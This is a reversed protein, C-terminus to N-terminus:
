SSVRALEREISATVSARVEDITIRELVENFFGFVILREAEARPIGRSMLYFLQEEEVPGVSAAHGCRVDNAEIELNPIARAFADESLIVNRSTQMADTQQAGPRVHVWGSYVGRSRDRLAGKYLLDSTCHPAVHDQETRHDFHQDDDAFFIGLAESTAGQEALISEAEARALSAGFGVNVSRFEADRALTARQVGLHTVGEGWEQLAVYRVRAAPGVVIETVADSLAHTLDRSVWRDIFTVEADEGVVILTHPFVASRDADLYVLSQLPLDVTVGAPVHLFTGATRFAAHLATFKTREPPVLRHLHPVVLDPHARAARELDDFVVGRDALSPDLHCFATTGNHQIRTGAREGVAGEAARIAPSLDALDAVAEGVPAAVLDLDLGSLDTYRWEETAQSPLPTALYTAFARERLDRLSEAADPLAALARQDFGTQMTDRAMADRDDM